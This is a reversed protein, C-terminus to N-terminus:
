PAIRSGDVKRTVRDKIHNAPRGSSIMESVAHVRAASARMTAFRVLSLSPGMSTLSGM